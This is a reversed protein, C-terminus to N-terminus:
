TAVYARCITGIATLAVVLGALVGKESSSIRDFVLAFAKFLALVVLIVTAYAAVLLFMLWYGGFLVIALSYIFLVVVFLALAVIEPLTGILEIAQLYFFFPVCLVVFAGIAILLAKLVWFLPQSGAITWQVLRGFMRRVVFATALAAAVTVAITATVFTYFIQTGNPVALMGYRVLFYTAFAIPVLGLGLLPLQVAPGALFARYPSSNQEELWIWAAATADKLKQKASKPLLWEILGLLGALLAAAFALNSILELM